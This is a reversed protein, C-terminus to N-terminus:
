YDVNKEADIWQSILRNMAIGRQHALTQLRARRDESLSLLLNNRPRIAKKQEETPEHDFHDDWAEDVLDSLVKAISQEREYALIKLKEHSQVRVGVNGEARNDM